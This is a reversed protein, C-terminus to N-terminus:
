AARPGDDDGDIEIHCREASLMERVEREQVSEPILHRQRIRAREEEFEAALRPADDYRMGLVPRETMYRSQTVNGVVAEANVLVQEVEAGGAVGTQVLAAARMKLMELVVGVRPESTKADIFEITDGQAGPFRIGTRAVWRGVAINAAEHLKVGVTRCLGALKDDAPWMFEDRLVSATRFGDQGGRKLSSAVAFRIMDADVPVRGRAWAEFDEVMTDIAILAVQADLISPRPDAASVPRLVYRPM